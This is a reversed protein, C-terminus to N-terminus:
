EFGSLCLFILHTTSDLNTQQESNIELATGFGLFIGLPLKNKGSKRTAHMQGLSCATASLFIPNPRFWTEHTTTQTLFPLRVGLIIPIFSIGLCKNKNWLM